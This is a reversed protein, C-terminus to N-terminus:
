KELKKIRQEILFYTRDDAIELTNEGNYDQLIYSYVYGEIDNYNYSEVIRYNYKKCRKIIKSGHRKWYGM